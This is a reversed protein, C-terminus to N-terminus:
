DPWETRSGDGGAPAVKGAPGPRAGQDRDPGAGNRELRVVARLGSQQPLDGPVGEHSTGPADQLAAARDDLTCRPVGAPRSLRICLTGAPLTDRGPVLRRRHPHGRGPAPRDGPDNRRRKRTRGARSEGFPVARLHRDHPRAGAALGGRDAPGRRGAQGGGPAAYPEGGSGARRAGASDHDPGGGVASRGAPAPPRGPVGVRDARRPRGPAHPLDPVHAGRRASAAHREAQAPAARRAQLVLVDGVASPRLGHPVDQVGATGHGGEGLLSSPYPLRRLVVPRVARGAGQDDRDGRREQPRHPPLRRLGEDRRDPGDASLPDDAHREHQGMRARAQGGRVARGPDSPVHRVCRAHCGPWPSTTRRAIGAAM